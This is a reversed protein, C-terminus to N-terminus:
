TSKVLKGYDGVKQITSNKVRYIVDCHKLTGLRHAVVIFTKEGKLKNIESVIAQETDDDLASTSEDLFLIDREHYLARALAIRQCQGGSLRAGREGLRSDLGDALDSLLNDLSVKRLCEIVKERDILEKSVGIAVNEMLSSDLIFVQQPLYAIQSRWHDLENSLSGGNFYIEGETPEMFGLLLDLLTTKGSGSAGIVGISDGKEFKLSVNKITEIETNPYRFSVDKVELSRFPKPSIIKQRNGFEVENLNKMDNYLISVTDRGYRLQTIGNIIHTVIPTLRMGAVGFVSLTPIIAVLQNESYLYINVVIVVFLLLVVELLYRPLTSIVVSKVNIDAHKKAAENVIDAFYDETGLIRMEKLGGIGENVGKIIQNSYINTLRGYEVVRRRFFLDYVGVVLALLFFLISLVLFNETALFIIVVLGVFGESLLKLIPHLIGQSFYAGLNINHILDASNRKTFESYPLRQYSRMLSDRLQTSHDFCFSSIKKNILVLFITKFLFVIVLVVGIGLITDEYSPSGFNELILSLVRSKSSLDPNVILAIYPAVLGLGALDLVSSLLVLPVLFPFKKLDDGILFRIEKIYQIYSKLM